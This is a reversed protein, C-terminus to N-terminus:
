HYEFNTYIFQYRVLVNRKNLKLNLFAITKVDSLGNANFFAVRWLHEMLILAAIGSPMRKLTRFCINEQFYYDFHILFGPM